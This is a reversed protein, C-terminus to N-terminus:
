CCVIFVSFWIDLLSFLLSCLEFVFGACARLRKCQVCFVCRELIGKQLIGRQVRKEHLHVKQYVAGFKEHLDPYIYIYIDFRERERYIYIYIYIHKYTHTHIHTYIYIYIYIMFYRLRGLPDHVLIRLAPITALLLSM